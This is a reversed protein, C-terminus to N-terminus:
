LVLWTEIEKAKNQFIKALGRWDMGIGAPGYRAVGIWAAGPM